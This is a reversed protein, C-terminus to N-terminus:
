GGGGGRRGGGGGGRRGGPGGGRPGRGNNPAVAANPGSYARSLKPSDENVHFTWTKTAANGMYDKASITIKHVGDPFTSNRGNTAEDITYQLYGTDEDFVYGAKTGLNEIPIRTIAKDDVKVTLGSLDLGSGEDTVVASIYFPATGKLDDGMEPVLPVITPPLKDPADSRFSTLAGDDTFVYLANGDVLPPASINATAPIAGAFAGSPKVVYRWKLSGDTKDYAYLGGRATGVLLTNGAIVPAIDTENDLRPAKKWLYTRGNESIALMYRDDRIVYMTGDADIAPPASATDGLSAQWRKQGSQLRYAQISDGAPIYLFEGVVVPTASQLNASLRTGWRQQGTAVNVSHIVQDSTVYYMSDNFNVIDGIFDGGSSIGASTASSWVGDAPEGTATQLAYIKSDASGFYIRDGILLPSTTVGARVSYRPWKLKGNEASVAYLGDGASFYIVGNGLTMSGTITTKLNESSPYAWKLSGTQANIAYIRSASAFFLTDGSLIPAGSVTPSYSSSYKWAVALPTTFAANARKVAAPAPDEAHAAPRSGMLGFLGLAACFISRSNPIRFRSLTM